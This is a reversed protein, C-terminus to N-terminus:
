HLARFFPSFFLSIQLLSWLIDSPSTPFLIWFWALLTLVLFFCSCHAWTFRCSSIVCCSIWWCSCCCVINALRWCCCCWCSWCSLWIFIVIICCCCCCCARTATSCSSALFFYVSYFCTLNLKRQYVLYKNHNLKIRKGIQRKRQKVSMKM